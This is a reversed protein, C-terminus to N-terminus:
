SKEIQGGTNKVLGIGGVCFGTFWGILGVGSLWVLKQLEVGLKM